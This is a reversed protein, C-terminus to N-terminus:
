NAGKMCCVSDPPTSCTNYDVPVYEPTYNCYPDEGGGKYWKQRIEYFQYCDTTYVPDAIKGKYEYYSQSPLCYGSCDSRRQYKCKKTQRNVGIVPYAFFSKGAGIYDSTTSHRTGGYICFLYHDDLESYTGLDGDDWALSATTQVTSNTAIWGSDNTAVRGRPSTLRASARFQHPQPMNMFTGSPITVSKAYIYHFDTTTASSAIYTGYSQYQAFAVGFSGISFLFLLSVRNM